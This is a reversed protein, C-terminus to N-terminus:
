EEILDPGEDSFYFRGQEVKVIKAKVSRASLARLDFIKNPDPIIRPSFKPNSYIDDLYRAAKYLQEEVEIVGKDLRVLCPRDDSLLNSDVIVKSWEPRRLVDLLGPTNATASGFLNTIDSVRTSKKETDDYLALPEVM